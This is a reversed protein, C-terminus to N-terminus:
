RASHPRVALATSGSRRTGAGRSPTPNQREGGIAELIRYLGLKPLRTFGAWAAAALAGDALLDALWEGAFRPDRQKFGAGSERVWRRNTREHFGVPAACVLPIGLAAYFCLESPKTWLVDTRALLANMERLYGDLHPHFQIEIGSGLAAELGADHVAEEFVARVARRTGAVLALRLSGNEVARRMSPLFTRALGAQAGAGGVAFTVLPPAPTGDQPVDGLFLGLEEGHEARFARGPDLRAVRAALNRKLTSLDPGGVLEDPLPFGTYTIRDAPVGYSRLRRATRPTPVLYRIRTERSQLPAWVRNVDTDTVVCHVDVARALDAVLAPAYFTTLLPRGTARLEAVLGKGLGRRVLRDLALVGRTPSSLDRFPHLRPIGTIGDLAWRLPAGVVPVQSLRSTREYAVRVSRWLREEPPAALPPGDVRVVEVGLADALSLAPRVHGYGMEVAAVIPLPRIEHSTM